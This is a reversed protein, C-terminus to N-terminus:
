VRPKQPPDGSMRIDTNDGVNLAGRAGAITAQKGILSDWLDSAVIQTARDLIVDRLTSDEIVCDPGISAYPGIASNQVRASPDIFVPAHIEVDSGYAMRAAESNERGHSLLYRNTKLVDEPKGADEWVDVKEARMRLGNELMVNFADALFFEGKLQIGKTMQEEIAQILDEGRQFYYVGVVALNDQMVDPKEILKKVYGDADLQVVGFRRPDEVEKVWICAEAQKQDLQSLDTEVLTDVFVILIPGSLGERALWIAHSQGRMEDQTVYRTPTEPHEEAMYSKIQEGLYGVIFVIEDIEPLTDFMDLVHGLVPKGAVQILPKPKSWTHPRMRTGFGAMPIVIKM